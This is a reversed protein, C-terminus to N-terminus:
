AELFYVTGWPGRAVGLDFPRPRPKALGMLLTQPPATLGLTRAVNNATGLPLLALPVKRRLHYLALATARVTGDGGAAIVLDGPDRLADKLDREGNIAPVKASVGITALTRVISAAALTETAAANANYILTARM